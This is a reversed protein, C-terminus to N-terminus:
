AFRVASACSRLSRGEGQSAGSGIVMMRSTGASVLPIGKGSLPRHLPPTSSMFVSCPYSDNVCSPAGMAHLQYGSSQVLALLSLHLVYYGYFAWRTRPVPLRLEGLQMLPLALLAWGNGNYVCLLGMCLWLWIPLVAYLHSRRWDWSGLLFHMRRGHQRFWGWAAVLLVGPWAYDVVIPLPITLAAVLAWLRRELAWVVSAALAFTFLM